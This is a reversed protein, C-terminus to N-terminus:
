CNQTVTMNHIKLKQKSQNRTSKKIAKCQNIMMVKKCARRIKHLSLKKNNIKLKSNMSQNSIQNNLIRELNKNSNIMKHKLRSKLLKLKKFMKSKNKMKRRLWQCRQRRILMMRLMRFMRM